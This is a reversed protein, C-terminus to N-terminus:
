ARLRCLDGARGSPTATRSPNKPTNRYKARWFQASRYQRAPVAERIRAEMGAKVASPERKKRLSCIPGRRTVPMRALMAPTATSTRQSFLVGAAPRLPAFVVRAPTATL